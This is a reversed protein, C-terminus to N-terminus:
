AKFGFMKAIMVGDLINVKGDHNIDAKLNWNPSTSTSGFALAWTVLDQIDVKGDATLDEPKLPAMIAGNILRRYPVTNGDADVIIVESLTIPFTTVTAPLSTVNFKMTALTGNGDPFSTWTGQDNPVIFVLVLVSPNGHEDPEVFVIFVTTGVSKFFAGETVMASQTALLVPYLVRFQVGVIRGAAQAALLKVDISVQDGVLTATVLIPDIKLYWPPPPTSYLFTAPVNDFADTPYGQGTTPDVMIVDTLELLSTLKQGAAPATTIKLTVTAIVGGGTKAAEPALLSVAFSVKGDSATGGDVIFIKGKDVPTFWHGVPIEAAVFQLMSSDYALNLQYGYVGPDTWDAAKITVTFETNVPTTDTFFENTAPDVFVQPRGQAAVNHLMPVLGVILTLTLLMYLPKIYKINM